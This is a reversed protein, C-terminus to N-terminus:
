MGGDGMPVNSPNKEAAAKHPDAVRALQPSGTKRLYRQYDRTRFEQKFWNIKNQFPYHYQHHFFYGRPKIKIFEKVM